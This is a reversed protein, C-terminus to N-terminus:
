CAGLENSSHMEKGSITKPLKGYEAKNLARGGGVWGM